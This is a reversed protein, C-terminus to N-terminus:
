LGDASHVTYEGTRRVLWEIKGGEPDGKIATTFSVGSDLLEGILELLAPKTVHYYGFVPCFKSKKRSVVGVVTKLNPLPISVVATGPKAKQDEVALQFNFIRTALEGRGRVKSYFKM